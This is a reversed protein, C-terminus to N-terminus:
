IWGIKKFLEDIATLISLFDDAEWQSNRYIANSSSTIKGLKDILSADGSKTAIYQAYSRAWQEDRSLYYSAHKVSGMAVINKTAQSDDVARRWDAFLSSSKSSWEGVVGFAQHDLFHGIEHFLTLEPHTSASSISINVPNNGMSTYSGASTKSVSSKISIMPVSDIKHIGDMIKLANIVEPSQGAGNKPLRFRSSLTQLKAKSKTNGTIKAVDNKFAKALEAPLGAAKNAVFDSGLSASPAYDFGYDIGKPITHTVGNRDTHQYTGNNPAPKGSYEKSGVAVIRCRCGWGNPCFHTKWWPDDYRLVVGNWSQHLERPHAVTDNHVYKWYPRVKLLDPDNLQKWRGAAYSTSLNTQYIVKTRWAVGDATGEGTWGTWGHKKVIGDFETRFWDLTKGESIAKGVATQLDNLLDAKAAGAVIFARDHAAKIIDDYHQSPLALKQNFFDIQEQFPLKFSGTAGRPPFGAGQIGVTLGM